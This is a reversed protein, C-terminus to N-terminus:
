TFFRNDVNIAMVFIENDIFSFMDSNLMYNEEQIRGSTTISVPYRFKMVGKSVKGPHFEECLEIRNMQVSRNIYPIGLTKLPIGILCKVTPNQGLYASNLQDNNVVIIPSDEIISDLKDCDERYASFKLRPLRVFDPYKFILRQIYEDQSNRIKTFSTTENFLSNPINSLGERVMEDMSFPKLNPTQSFMNDM